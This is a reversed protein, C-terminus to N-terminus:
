SNSGGAQDRGHKKKKKKLPSPPPPGNDSCSPDFRGRCISDPMDVFYSVSEAPVAKRIYVRVAQGLEALVPLAEVVSVLLKPLAPRGLPLQVLTDKLVQHAM